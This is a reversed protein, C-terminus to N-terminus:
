PTLWAGLAAVSLSVLVLIGTITYSVWPPPIDLELESDKFVKTM